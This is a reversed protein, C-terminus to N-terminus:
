IKQLISTHRKLIRQKQKKKIDLVNDPDYLDTLDMGTITNLQKLLTMKKM